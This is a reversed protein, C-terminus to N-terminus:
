QHASGPQTRKATTEASMSAPAILERAVTLKNALGTIVEDEGRLMAQFGQVAVESAEMRPETALKTDETGSRRFIATDTLGPLLCTVTIGHEKLEGRLAFSFSHLFAKSANYLAMYPAPAFAAISSTILIRGAGRARMPRGLRHILRTTGEVNTRVVRMAEELEQDFFAHGLARGANALLADVPRDGVQAVLKEVGEPTALDCHVAEVAGGCFGRLAKAAEHIEAEDAAIVLDYGAKACELALEYGIGTSAGTVVALPPRSEQKEREASPAAAAALPNGVGELASNDQSM